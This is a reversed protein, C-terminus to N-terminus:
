SYESAVYRCIDSWEELTLEEPFAKGSSVYCHECHLNCKNTVHLQLRAYDSQDDLTADALFNFYHLDRILRRLRGEAERADYGHSTLVQLAVRLTAGALLRTLAESEPNDLVVYSPIDPAIFLARGDIETKTVGSPLNFCQDYEFKAQTLSAARQEM